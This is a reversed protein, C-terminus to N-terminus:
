LPNPPKSPTQPTSLIKPPSRDLTSYIPPAVSPLETTGAAGGSRGEASHFPDEVGSILGLASAKPYRSTAHNLFPCRCPRPRDRQV